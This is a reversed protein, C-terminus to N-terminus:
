FGHAKVSSPRGWVRCTVPVQTRTGKTPSMLGPFGRTAVIMEGLGCLLCLILTKQKASSSKKPPLFCGITAHARGLCLYLLTSWIVGNKSALPIKLWCCSVFIVCIAPFFLFPQKALLPTQETEHALCSVNIKCSEGLEGNAMGNGPPAVWPTRMSM